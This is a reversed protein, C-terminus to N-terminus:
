RGPAAAARAAAQESLLMENGPMKELARAYASIADPYRKLEVYTRALLAWEEGNGGSTQLRKAMREAAVDITPLSEAPAAGMTSGAGSPATLAPPAPVAAGPGFQNDLYRYLEAMPETGADATPATQKAAVGMKPVASGSDMSTPPASMAPGTAPREDLNRYLIAGSGAVGAAIVAIVVYNRKINPTM